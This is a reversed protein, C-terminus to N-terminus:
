PTAAAAGVPLAWCGSCRCTCSPDDDDCGTQHNRCHKPVRRSAEYRDQGYSTAPEDDLILWGAARLAADAEERTSFYGLCDEDREDDWSRNDPGMWVATGILPRERWEYVHGDYAASTARRWPGAIKPAADISGQLRKVWEWVERPTMKSWNLRMSAKGPTSQEKPRSLPRAEYRGDDRGPGPASLYQTIREADARTWRCMSSDGMWYCRGDPFECWVGWREEPSTSTQVTTM